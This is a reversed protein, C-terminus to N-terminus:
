PFLKMPHGAKRLNGTDQFIMKAGKCTFRRVKVLSHIHMLDEINEVTYFRRHAKPTHGGKKVNLHFFAEWYRLVIESINLFDSVERISYYLKGTPLPM